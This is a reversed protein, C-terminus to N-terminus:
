RFLHEDLDKLAEKLESNRESQIVKELFIADDDTPERELSYSLDLLEWLHRSKKSNHSICYEEILIRSYENM